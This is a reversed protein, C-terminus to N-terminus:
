SKFFLGTVDWTRNVVGYANAESTMYINASVMNRVPLNDRSIVEVVLWYTWDENRHLIGDAPDIQFTLKYCAEAVPSNKYLQEMFVRADANSLKVPTQKDEEIEFPNSDAHDAEKSNIQVLSPM